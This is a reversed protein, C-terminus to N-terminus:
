SLVDATGVMLEEQGEGEMRRDKGGGVGASFFPPMLCPMLAIHPDGCKHLRSAQGVGQEHM